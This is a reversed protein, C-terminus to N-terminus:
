SGRKEDEVAQEDSRNFVRQASALGKELIEGIAQVARAEAQELLVHEAQSPVGLVWDTVLDEENRQSLIEPSLLSRPHGIGVRVRMFDATGLNQILSAVGRHGAASGGRRIRLTGPALDLDDHVVLGEQAEITFYRLLLACAEGSCNMYNQPLVLLCSTQQWKTRLFNTGFKSQWRLDAGTKECSRAFEGLVRFGVNHRTHAYRSGPNGLGIVAFM